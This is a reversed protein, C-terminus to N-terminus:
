KVNKLKNIEVRLDEIEKQQEKIANLMAWMIPQDNLWLYGKEETVAEPIVKQVDNAILSVHERKDNKINLQKNDKFNFRVPNIKLIEKLGLNYSKINEKLRIDSVKACFNLYRIDEGYIFGDVQLKYSPNADQGINVRGNENITILRLYDRGDAKDGLWRGNRGVIFANGSENNDSDLFAFIGGSSRLRLAEEAATISTDAAVPDRIDYLRITPNTGSIHLQTKPDITGIGVNGEIVAGGKLGTAIESYTEGVALAGNVSLTNKPNETGIGVDGIGKFMVKTTLSGVSPSFSKFKLDTPKGLAPDGTSADMIWGKDGTPTVLAFHPIGGLAGALGITLKAIPNITSIGVQGGSPQLILNRKTGQDDVEIAGYRNTDTADTKIGMFLSLPFVGGTINDLSAIQFINEFAATIAKRNTGRVDLKSRPVDGSSIGIGVRGDRAIRMREEPSFAAIPSSWFTIDQGRGAVLDLRGANAHNSGHLDISAGQDNNSNDSKGATIRLRRDYTTDPYKFAILGDKEEGFYLIRTDLENYSGYPSPYYTTITIDEALVITSIFVLVCLVLWSCRLLKAMSVEM